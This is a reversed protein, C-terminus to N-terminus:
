SDSSSYRSGAAWSSLGAQGGCGELHRAAEAQLRVHIVHPRQDGLARMRNVAQSVSNRLAAGRPLEQADPESRVVLSYGEKECQWLSGYMGGVAATM